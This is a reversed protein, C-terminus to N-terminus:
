CVDLAPLPGPVDRDDEEGRYVRVGLVGEPAVRGARHVVHGLGDVRPHQARLHRDEDVEVALPVLQLLLRRQQAAPQGAPGVFARGPRVDGGLQGVPQGGHLAGEGLQARHHGVRGGVVDGGPQQPQPGDDLRQVRASGIGGSLSKQDWARGGSSGYAYWTTVTACPGTSSGGTLSRTSCSYAPTSATSTATPPTALRVTSESRPSDLQSSAGGRAPSRASITIATVSRSLGPPQTM